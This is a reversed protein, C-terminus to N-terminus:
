PQSTAPHTKPTPTPSPPPPHTAATNPTHHLARLLTAATPPRPVGWKQLWRYLTTRPIGLVQATKKTDLTDVLNSLVIIRLQDALFLTSARPKM